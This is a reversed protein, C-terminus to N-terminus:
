NSFGHGANIWNTITQKEAATLSAQPSIPMRTLTGTICSGNIGSWAKVINCDTDFNYGKQTQGNTHCGSGSCRGQVLIKLASFTPGAPV